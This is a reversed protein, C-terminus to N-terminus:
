KMYWQKSMMMVIIKVDNKNSQWWEDDDIIMIDNQMGHDNDYWEANDINNWIFNM